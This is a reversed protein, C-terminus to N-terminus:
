EKEADHKRDLYEGTEGVFTPPCWGRRREVGSQGGSAVPPTTTSGEPFVPSPGETLEESRDPVWRREFLKVNTDPHRGMYVNEWHGKKRPIVM